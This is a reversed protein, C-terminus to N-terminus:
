TTGTGVIFIEAEKAYLFTVKKLQLFRNNLTEEYSVMQRGFMGSSRNRSFTNEFLRSATFTMKLRRVLEFQRNSM